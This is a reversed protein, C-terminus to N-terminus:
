CLLHTHSCTDHLRMHQPPWAPPFLQQGPSRVCRQSAPLPLLLSPVLLHQRVFPVAPSNDQLPGKFIHDDQMYSTAAAHSMYRAHRM